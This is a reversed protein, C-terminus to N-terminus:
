ACARRRWCRHTAEEAAACPRSAGGCGRGAAQRCPTGSWLYRPRAALAKRGCARRGQPDGGEATPASTPLPEATITANADLMADVEIMADADPMAIVADVALGADVCLAADVGQAADVAQMAIVADVTIGADVGQAAFVAEVAIGADVGQAADAADMWPTQVMCPM